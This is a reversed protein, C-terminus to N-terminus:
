PRCRDGGRRRRRDEPGGTGAPVPVGAERFLKRGASKFGIPWLNPDTGDIPIGLRMAVAVEDDTVNWPVIYAPRDGIMDGVRDLIDPRDLVKAAIARSSTDPVAVHHFRRQMGESREPPVLSRYYDLIEDGPPTTSLMIMECAEIRWLMLMAILYRHELSPIRDAYHSLLSEGVSFSPLLVLVHEVGVGPKNLSLVDGLRAQLEEFGEM